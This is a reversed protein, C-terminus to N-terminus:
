AVGSRFVKAPVSHATRRTRKLVKALFASVLHGSPLM